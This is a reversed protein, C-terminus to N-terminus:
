SHISKIINFKYRKAIQNLTIGYFKNEYVNISIETM